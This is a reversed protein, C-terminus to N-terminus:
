IVILSKSPITFYIVISVSFEINSNTFTSSSYIEYSFVNRLCIEASAFDNEKMYREYEKWDNNANQYKRIAKDLIKEAKAKETNTM